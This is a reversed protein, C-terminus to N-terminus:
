GRGRPSPTDRLGDHQGTDHSSQGSMRLLVGVVMEEPCAHDSRMLRGQGARNLCQGQIAKPATGTNQMTAGSCSWGESSCWLEPRPPKCPSHPQRSPSFSGAIAPHARGAAQSCTPLLCCPPTPHPLLPLHTTLATYGAATHTFSPLLWPLLAGILCKLVSVKGEREGRVSLLAGVM